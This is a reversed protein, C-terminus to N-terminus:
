SRYGRNERTQRQDSVSAKVVEMLDKLQNSVECITPESSEGGPLGSPGERRDGAMNGQGPFMEELGSSPSNNHSARITDGSMRDAATDDVGATHIQAARNCMVIDMYLIYLVIYLLKTGVKVTVYTRVDKEIM